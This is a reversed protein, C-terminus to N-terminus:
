SCLSKMAAFCKPTSEAIPMEWIDANFLEISFLGRYGLTELKAIMGKLDLVGEGPLVRDANCDSIDGPKDRMDDIHVHIIKDVVDATIDELKTPTCHVHAPDFLIGVRPHNAAKAVVYASKLSKVIPSWNFEVAISVGPPFTEVLAALTLGIERLAELSKQAPGDTGVVLTGGGAINAILRANARHFEHNAAMEAPSAFCKVEAEFGGILKQNNAALLKKVDDTTHGKSLHTKIIGLPFEVSRFGAAAYVRLMEDLPAAKTSVANIAIQETKM